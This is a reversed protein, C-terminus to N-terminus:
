RVPLLGLHNLPWYRFLSRATINQMPLFGWVRSDASNNRNDGMVFVSDNPVIVSGFNNNSQDTIYPEYLPKDNIYTTSNKIEVKDGPLGMVRKIFDDTANAKPPPRFVIIEGQRIHDFYKLYFKYAKSSKLYFPNDPNTRIYLEQDQFLSSSLRM